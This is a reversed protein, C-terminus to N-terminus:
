HASFPNEPIIIQPRLAATLYKHANGNFVCLALPFTIINHVEHFIDCRVALSDDPLPSEDAAVWACGHANFIMIELLQHLDGHIWRKGEVDLFDAGTILCQAKM